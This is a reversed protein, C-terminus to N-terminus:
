YGRSAEPNYRIRSLIAKRQERELATYDIEYETSQLNWLVM